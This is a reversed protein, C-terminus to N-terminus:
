VQWLYEETSNVLNPLELQPESLALLSGLNFQPGLQSPSLNQFALPDDLGTSTPVAKPPTAARATMQGPADFTQDILEPVGYILPGSATSALSLWQDGSVRDILDEFGNVAALGQPTGTFANANGAGFIDLAPTYGAQANMTPGVGAGGEGAAAGTGAGAGSFEGIKGGAYSAAAAIAANKGINLWDPNDEGQAFGGMWEGAASGAAAGAPGYYIGGIIAGILPLVSSSLASLRQGVEGYDAYSDKGAFLEASDEQLADWWEAPEQGHIISSLLRDFQAADWFSSIDGLLSDENGGFTTNVFGALDGTMVDIALDGANDWTNQAVDGVWEAADGIADGIDSVVDTVSDWADSFWGM